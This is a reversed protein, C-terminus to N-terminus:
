EPQLSASLRFGHRLKCHRAVGHTGPRVENARISSSSTYYWLHPM